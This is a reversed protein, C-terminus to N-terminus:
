AVLNFHCRRQHSTGTLVVPPRFVDIRITSVTYDGLMFHYTVVEMEHYHVNKRGCFVWGDERPLSYHEVTMSDICLECVTGNVSSRFESFQGGPLVIVANSDIIFL